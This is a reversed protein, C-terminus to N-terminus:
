VGPLKTRLEIPGMILFRDFENIVLNNKLFDFIANSSPTKETAKGHGEPDRDLNTM